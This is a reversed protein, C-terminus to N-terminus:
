HAPEDAQAKHLKNIAQYDNITVAPLRQFVMVTHSKAGLPIYIFIMFFGKGYFVQLIFWQNRHM